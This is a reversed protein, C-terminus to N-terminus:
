RKEVLKKCTPIGKKFPILSFATKKERLLSLSLFHKRRNQLRRFLEEKDAQRDKLLLQIEYLYDLFALLKEMAEYKYFKIKNTNNVISIASLFDSFDYISHFYSGFQWNLRILDKYSLSYKQELVSLSIKLYQAFLVALASEISQSILMRKKQSETTDFIQEISKLLSYVVQKEGNFHPTTEARRKNLFEEVLAKQIEDPETELNTIHPTSDLVQELINEQLGLPWLSKKGTIKDQLHHGTMYTTHGKRSKLLLYRKFRTGFFSKRQVASIQYIKNKLKDIKKALKKKKQNIKNQASLSETNELQKELEQYQEELLLIREFLPDTKQKLKNLWLLRHQKPGKQNVQKLMDENFKLAEELIFFVKNQSKNIQRSLWAMRLSFMLGSNSLSQGYSFVRIYKQFKRILPIIMVDIVNCFIHAGKMGMFVSLITEAAESSLKLVAFLYGYQGTLQTLQASLNKSRNKTNIATQGLFGKPIHEKATQIMLEPDLDCPCYNEFEQIYIKLWARTLNWFGENLYIKHGDVKYSPIVSSTTTNELLEPSMLIAKEFVALATEIEKESYHNGHAFSQMPTIPWITWCFFLVLYKVIYRHEHKKKTLQIQFLKTKQFVALCVSLKKLWSLTILRKVIYVFLSM